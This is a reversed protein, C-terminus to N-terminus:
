QGDGFIRAMQQQMNRQDSAPSSASKQPTATAPTSRPAPQPPIAGSQRSAMEAQLMKEFDNMQERVAEGKPPPRNVGGDATRSPRFLKQRASELASLPRTAEAKNDPNTEAWIAEAQRRWREALGTGENSAPAFAEEEGAAEYTTDSGYGTQWSAPEYAPQWSSTEAEPAHGSVIRSEIVVDTPGGIMILHEVDDRRVLVLRRRADVPTTDLVELRSPGRRGTLFSAGGRQRLFRMAYVFGLLAFGVGAIAILLRWGYNGLADEMDDTELPPGHNRNREYWLFLAEPVCVGCAQVFRAHFHRM